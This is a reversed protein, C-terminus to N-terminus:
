RRKLWFSTKAKAGLRNLGFHIHNRHATTDDVHKRRGKRDYCVSYPRMGQPGAFWARCNWIIEQLGMRRALSRENGHQDTALLQVILRRAALREARVHVSLSWDLARGDAHLSYNRRGLKECRIMGASSGRTHAGLWRKLLITGTQPRKVCRHAYDYRYGDIQAPAQGAAVASLLAALVLGRGLLASPM